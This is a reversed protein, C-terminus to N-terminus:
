LVKKKKSECDYYCCVLLSISLEFSLYHHHNLYTEDGSCDNRDDYSDLTNGAVVAIVVFLVVLLVLTNYLYGYPFLIVDININCFTM